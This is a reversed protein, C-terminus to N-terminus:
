AAEQMSPKGTYWEMDSGSECRMPMVICLADVGTISYVAGTNGNHALFTYARPQQAYTQLALQCDALLDSNFQAIEGSADTRIVREYEPFRGDVPTFSIVDGNITALSYKGNDESVSIASTQLLRKTLGKLAREIAERPIIIAPFDKADGHNDSLASGCFLM